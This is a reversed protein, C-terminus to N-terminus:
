GRNRQDVIRITHGLEPGHLLRSYRPVDATLVRCLECRVSGSDYKYVVEGTLPIRGCRECREASPARESLGRRLLALEFDTRPRTHEAM